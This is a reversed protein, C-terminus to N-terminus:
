TGCVFTDHGPIQDTKQENNNEKIEEYLVLARALNERLPSGVTLLSDKTSNIYIHQLIEAALEQFIKERTM